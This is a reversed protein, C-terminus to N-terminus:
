IVCSFAFIRQSSVYFKAYLGYATRRSWAPTHRQSFRQLLFLDHIFAGQINLLSLLHSPLRSLCLLSSAFSPLSPSPRISLFFSAIVQAPNCRRTDWIVVCVCVCACWAANSGVRFLAECLSSPAAATAVLSLHPLASVAPLLAALPNAPFLSQVSTMWGERREGTDM